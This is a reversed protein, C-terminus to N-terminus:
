EMIVHPTMEISNNIGKQDMLVSSLSYGVQLGELKSEANSISSPEKERTAPYVELCVNLM